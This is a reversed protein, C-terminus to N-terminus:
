VLVKGIIPWLVQDVALDELLDVDLLRGWEWRWLLRLLARCNITIAGGFSPM